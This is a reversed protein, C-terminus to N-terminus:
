EQHNYQQLYSEAIFCASISDIKSKELNKYGGRAFLFEKAEKTTLREDHLHAQIGYRGFLRKAFKEARVTMEQSTGDMNLPWGVVFYTPKWEQVLQEILEWKPIGEQAKLAMLPAATQTISQGIAVGISRLGFDFALVSVSTPNPM